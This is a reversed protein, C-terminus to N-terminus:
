EQTRLLTDAFKQSPLLMSTERFIIIFLVDGVMGEHFIYDVISSAIFIM